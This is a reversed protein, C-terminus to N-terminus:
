DGLLPQNYMRSQTTRVDAEIILKVEHVSANPQSLLQHTEINLGTILDDDELLCYILGEHTPDDVVQEQHRPVALADFLTKLRNDMDGGQYVKGPPQQRLFLIKLGCNLATRERVLPLFERGGRVMVECLDISDPTPQGAQLQDDASHHIEVRWYGAKTSVYQHRRLAKLAPHSAWLQTLQPHIKKRIAWIKEKSGNAPLEGDYTLTFKM